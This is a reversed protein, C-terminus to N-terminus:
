SFAVFVPQWEQWEDRSFEEELYQGTKARGVSSVKISMDPRVEDVYALFSSNNDGVVELVSSTRPTTNMAAGKIGRLITHWNGPMRPREDPWAVAQSSQKLKYLIFEVSQLPLKLESGLLEDKIYRRLKVTQEDKDGYVQGTKLQAFVLRKDTSLSETLTWGSLKENRIHSYTAGMDGVMVTDGFILRGVATDFMLEPQQLVMAVDSIVVAAQGESQNPAYSPSFSKQPRDAIQRVRVVRASPPFPRSDGGKTSQDERSTNGFVFHGLDKLVELIARMM